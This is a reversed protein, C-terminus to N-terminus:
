VLAELRADPFQALAAAVGSRSPILCAATSLADALAASGASISVSAWASHVPRGTHPDLIHGVMGAQDFTTGLPASTALARDRLALERGSPALTIPWAAGAPTAGVARYEGTNVLLNDLGEARLLGAVRDAIYGQAIGNLTLAMGPGIAVEDEDLRVKEWGVKRRTEAIEADTPIQGAAYREAHLAWLPQVTPDFLGSTARHVNNCVSLCELLEADPQALRGDRNLNSLASDAQYLSFIRELRAIEAAARAAAGAAGAGAPLRIVAEAGLANGRWVYLDPAEARAVGMLALTAAGASVSLFRRRSLKNM